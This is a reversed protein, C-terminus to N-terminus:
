HCRRISRSQWCHLRHCIGSSRSRGRPPPTTVISPNPTSNPTSGIRGRTSGSLSSNDTVRESVSAPRSSTRHMVSDNGPRTTLASISTPHPPLFNLVLRSYSTLIIIGRRRALPIYNCNADFGSASKAGHKSKKKRLQNEVM